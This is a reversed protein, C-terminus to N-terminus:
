IYKSLIYSFVFLFAAFYYHGFFIFVIFSIIVLISAHELESSALRLKYECEEYNNIIDEIDEKSLKDVDIM